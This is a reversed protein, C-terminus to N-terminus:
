HQVAPQCGVLKLIDEAEIDELASATEGLKDALDILIRKESGDAARDAELLLHRAQRRLDSPTIM